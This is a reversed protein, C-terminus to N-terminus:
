FNHGISHVVSGCVASGTSLEACTVETSSSGQSSGGSSGTMSTSSSVHRNMGRVTPMNSMGVDEAYIPPADDNSNVHVRTHAQSKRFNPHGYTLRMGWVAHGLASTTERAILGANTPTPVQRDAIQVYTASQSDGFQLPHNDKYAEQLARRFAHMKIEQNHVASLGARIMLGLALLALTGFVGLETLAQGRCGRKMFKACCFKDTQPIRRM